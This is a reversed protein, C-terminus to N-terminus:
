LVIFCRLIEVTDCVCLMFCFYDLILKNNCELLMMPIRYIFMGGVVGGKNVFTHTHEKVLLNNEAGVQFLIEGPIVTM